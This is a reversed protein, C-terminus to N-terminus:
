QSVGSSELNELATRPSKGEEEVESCGRSRQKGSQRWRLVAGRAAARGEGGNM